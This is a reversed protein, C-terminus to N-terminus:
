ILTGKAVDRPPRVAAIRVNSEGDTPPMTVTFARQREAPPTRPYDSGIVVVADASADAGFVVDFEPRLRDALTQRVSRSADLTPAETVITVRSRGRGSLTLPPDILAAIAIAFAAVRLLRGIM